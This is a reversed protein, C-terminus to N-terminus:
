EELSNNYYEEQIERFKAKKNCIEKLLFERTKIKTVSNAMVSEFFEKYVSNDVDLLKSELIFTTLIDIQAELYALSDYYDVKNLLEMKPLFKDFKKRFTESNDYLVQYGTVYSTTPILSNEFGEIEAHNERLAVTIDGNEEFVIRGLIREGTLFTTMGTYRDSFILLERLRLRHTGFNSVIIEYVNGIKDDISIERSLEVIENGDDINVYLAGIYNIKLKNGETRKISISFSANANEPLERRFLRDM